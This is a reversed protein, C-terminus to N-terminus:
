ESWATAGTEYHFHETTRLSRAFFKTQLRAIASAEDGPWEWIKDQLWPPFRPTVPCPSEQINDVIAANNTNATSYGRGLKGQWRVAFSQFRLLM